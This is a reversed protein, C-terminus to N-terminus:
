GGPANSAGLKLSAEQVRIWLALAEAQGQAPQPLEAEKHEDAHEKVWAVAKAVTWGKAKAFLFTRVKKVKGCYLAKIGEDASITITATVGCDGVGPNPVRITDETEEVKVFEPEIDCQQQGKYEIVTAAPMAAMSVVSIEYLEIEALHWIGDDDQYDSIVDFGISLETLVGNKLLLKADEGRRTPVIATEFYLGGTAEPYEELLKKPLRSKPVERLVSPKGLPERWDHQWCLLIRAQHRKLTDKFAGYDVVENYADQFGAVSAYGRLLGEGADYEMTQAIVDGLFVERKGERTEIITKPRAKREM